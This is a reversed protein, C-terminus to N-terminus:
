PILLLIPKESAELTIKGNVVPVQSAKGESETNSFDIRTATKGSLSLSVGSVRKDESTTCWVVYATKGKGGISKFQYILVEPKGSAVEGVFRMGTLQKKLTALYHYSPKPKWQGKETVLGCTAFVGGDDSKTDRFMFMAARDVGSAALAFYSRLLWIAQVEEASYRGIAPVHLPSRPDTDYGFETVWLECKPVFTNLWVVVETFKERLHDAEPSIGTKKFGQEDTGDSSYHHFNIVDAPFDGDRHTDAWFKMAKLYDLHIGALGGMVLRMKPDANHVGVTKGMRGRDGDYDASCMAALEYPTFRGERGRWTKDPENWNEVYNLSNLGTRRPQGPALKLLSDLVSKSGYRAAYQFLHSAHIKYSAPDEADAGPSVPKAEGNPDSFYAPSSQQIAPSVTVKLAKLRAYYDDFFWANGGAAGSPQFRVLKDKNETDWSWNHYERVFSVPLALLDLPDDIFANTGIFQDMTAQTSTRKPRTPPLVVPSAGEGYLVLELLSVPRTLTIRLYRTSLPLPYENWKRYGGLKLEQKKWLLPTGTSLTITSEGSENYLSLRTLSRAVGLDIVVHIPYQTPSWGPSFPHTPPIEKETAPDLIINQEDILALADGLATENIIMDPRLVIRTDARGPPVCSLFLGTAIGLLTLSLSRRKTETSRDTRQHM